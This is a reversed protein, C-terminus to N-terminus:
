IKVDGYFTFEMLREAGIIDFIIIEDMVKKKM